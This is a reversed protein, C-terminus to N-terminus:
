KISYLLHTRKYTRGNIVECKEKRIYTFKLGLEKIMGRLCNLALNPTKEYYSCRKKNYLKFIESEMSNLTQTNIEKAIDDRDIDIFKTLDDIEGKGMDVLIKNVFNLAIMYKDTSKISENINMNQQEIM